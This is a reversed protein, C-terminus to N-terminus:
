RSRLVSLVSHKLLLEGGKIKTIVKGVTFFDFVIKASVYSLFNSVFQCNQYKNTILWYNVHYLSVWKETLEMVYFEAMNM